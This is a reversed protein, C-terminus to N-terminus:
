SRRGSKAAVLQQYDAVARTVAALDCPKGSLLAAATEHAALLDRGESVGLRAAKAHYAALRGRLEARRDLLGQALNEAAVAAALASDIRDRLAALAAAGSEAAVADLESRLRASEDALRPLPGSRITREVEAKAQAARAVTAVLEALRTRLAAVAAPRNAALAAIEALIAAQRRLAGGLEAVRADIEATTLALPDTASRSLLEAIGDGIARLEPTAAPGANDLTEQLPALGSMVRTNVQDVADLFEAISPFTARMRDVTDALGVFLVHESPGTLSREALPIPTRSVEYPRGRLLETLEARRGDDLKARTGRVTRASDLIARMRGLDEWMLALADRVPLWRAATVGSPPYRRVLTLGPHKDLELMTNTIADLETTRRTLELDIEVLGLLQMTRSM